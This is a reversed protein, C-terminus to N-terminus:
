SEPLEITGSLFHCCEGGIEVRDEHLTCWLDGGRPSLQVSHLEKRGLKDAWYPVLIRHATGCVPDEPLGLKPAFVRLVFDSVDGPATAIVAGRELSTIAAMDPELALLDAPSDYVAVFGFPADLTERPMRGLANGLAERKDIPEGPMLPWPVDIRNGKRRVVRQSGDAMAFTLTDGDHGSAFAIHAAALMAHGAGGHRGERTHFHLQVTDSGAQRLSALVAENLQGALSQMTKDPAEDPLSVVFVPNGSFARRSFTVIQHVEARM